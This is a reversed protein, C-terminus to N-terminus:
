HHHKKLEEIEAEMQVLMKYQEDIVKQQEETKKSQEITYLTLEEVKKLLVNQNAGVDIGSKEVDSASPMDPLHRNKIVFAELEKLSILKYGPDFVYDSWGTTTVVVKQSYIDGNVALKLNADSFLVSPVAGIIVVGANSNNINSGSVSWNSSGSGGGGSFNSVAEIGIHGSADSV